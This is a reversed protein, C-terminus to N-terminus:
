FIFFVIYLYKLYLNFSFKFLLNFSRNKSNLFLSFLFFKYYILFKVLERKEPFFKESDMRYHKNIANLIFSCFQLFIFLIKYIHGLKSIKLTQFNFFEFDKVSLYITHFFFNIVKRNLNKKRKCFYLCLKIFNSPKFIQSKDGQSNNKFRNTNLFM